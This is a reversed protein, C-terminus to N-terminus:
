SQRKRRVIVLTVGALLAGIFVLGVVIAISPPGLPTIGTHGTGMLPVPESASNFERGQLDSYLIRGQGLTLNGIASVKIWCDYEYSEGPLLRDVKGDFTGNVIGIGSMPVEHFQTNLASGNGNNILAVHVKVSANLLVTSSSLIQTVIVHPEYTVHKFTSALNTTLDIYKWGYTRGPEIHTNEFWENFSTILIWDPRSELAAQFSEQYTLGENRSLYTGKRGPVSRDDYGPTITAAWLRSENSSESHLFGVIKTSFSLGEYLTTLSNGALANLPNYIHDGDFLRFADPNKSDAIYFAEDGEQKLTSLIGQWFQVPYSDVSYVFVVPKGDLNFYRPDKGYESFFGRFMTLLDNTTRPKDDITTEKANM